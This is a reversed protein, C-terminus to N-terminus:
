KSQADQESMAIGLYDRHWGLGNSLGDNKWGFYYGQRPRDFTDSAEFVDAKKMEGKSVAVLDQHKLEKARKLVKSSMVGMGSHQANSNTPATDQKKKKKRCSGFTCVKKSMMLLTFDELNLSQGSVSEINSQTQQEWPNTAWASEVSVQQTEEDQQRMLGQLFDLFSPPDPSGFDDPFSISNWIEMNKGDSEKTQQMGEIAAILVDESSAKGYDFLPWKKTVITQNRLPIMCANVLSAITGPLSSASLLPSESDVSSSPRVSQATVAIKFLTEILEETSAGDIVHTMVVLLDQLSYTNDQPDLPLGHAVRDIIHWGEIPFRANSMISNLRGDFTGDGDGSAGGEVNGQDRILSLSSKVAREFDRWTVRGGPYAKWLEDAFYEFEVLGFNPNSARLELIEGSSIAVNYSMEKRLEEEVKGGKWNRMFYGVVGCIFAFGFKGAHDIFINGTKHSGAAGGQGKKVVKKRVKEVFIRPEKRRAQLRAANGVLEAAAILRTARMCARKM